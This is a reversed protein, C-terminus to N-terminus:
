QRRRLVAATVVAAGGAWIGLILYSQGVDPVIGDTLSDRVVNAMAYFPLYQNVTGLWDPLNEIPYSIAL